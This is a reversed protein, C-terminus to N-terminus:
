FPSNNPGTYDYIHVVPGYGKLHSGWPNRGNELKCCPDVYRWKNTSRTTVKAFIHGTSGTSCHVYQLKLKDNCGVAYMMTLMLRTSDCCNASHKSLATSPTRHFNAYYSYKLHAKSGCWAAIKKAADLGTSNGVIALAQKKVSSPITYSTTRTQTDTVNKANQEAKDAQPAHPAKDAVAETKDSQAPQNESAERIESVQRIESIPPQPSEM